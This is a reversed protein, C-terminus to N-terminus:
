SDAHPHVFKELASLQDQLSLMTRALLEVQQHVPMLRIQAILVDHAHRRNEAECAACLGQPSLPTQLLKCCSPCIYATM